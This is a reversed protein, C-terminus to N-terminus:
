ADVRLLRRYLALYERTMRERTLPAVAARATEGMARADGQMLRQLTLTLLSLDLADVVFGNKGSQILDIAGCKASTVVPLGCAMAELCANPFPDYLTPLVFADAAAYYPRVDEVPGTFRVRSAVKLSHAMDQYHALHKDGGVIVAFATEPLGALAALLMAVGKRAFGSGVLLLVFGRDPLAMAARKPSRLGAQVAPRFREGDVANYIVPLRERPLGFHSVIEDQVMRSNCVVAKLQPHAFMRAEEALVFRHHPNLALAARGFREAVRARQDLYVRHVGDGARFIDCGAIREHSQVLDFRERALVQRVGRAFAADRWASGVHFPDVTIARGIADAPWTRTIVTLDVEQGLAAIIGATFREAGGFPNYRQRILALRM